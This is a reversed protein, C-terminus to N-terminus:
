SMHRRPELEAFAEALSAAVDALMSASLCVGRPQGTSGSTYTICSTGVPWRPATLTPERQWLTLSPLADQALVRWDGGIGRGAPLALLAAGCDALVHLLQSPSFFPPVAAHIIGAHQAGLEL